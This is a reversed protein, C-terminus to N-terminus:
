NSPGPGASCYFFTFYICICCPFLLHLNLNLLFFFSLSVCVGLEEAEVLDLHAELADSSLEPFFKYFKPILQAALQKTKVNTKATDIIGYYEPQSQSKPTLFKPHLPQCILPNKLTQNKKLISPNPSSSSSPQLLHHLNNSKEIKKKFSISFYFVFGLFDILSWWRRWGEDDEEGFWFGIHFFGLM